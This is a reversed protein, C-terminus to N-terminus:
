YVVLNTHEKKQEGGVKAKLHRLFGLAGLFRGHIKRQSSLFIASFFNILGGQRIIIFIGEVQVMRGNM